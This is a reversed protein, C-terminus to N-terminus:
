FSYLKDKIYICYLIYLYTIYPTFTCIIYMINIYIYTIWATLCKKRLLNYWCVFRRYLSVIVFFLLM